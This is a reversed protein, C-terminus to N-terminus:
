DFALRLEKAVGKIMRIKSSHCFLFNCEGEVFGISDVVHLSDVRMSITKFESERELTERIRNLRDYDAGQVVEFVILPYQTMITDIAGELVQPEYSEVDLHILDVNNLGEKEVYDDITTVAIDVKESHESRFEPNLSSSTELVEGFRKAPVYLTTTGSEDGVALPVIMVTEEFGNLHLNRRLMELAPPYPEFAHVSRFGCAAAIFSFLGSNAGVDLMTGSSAGLQAVFAPLPTEYQRIGRNWVFRVVHDVGGGSYMRIRKRGSGSDISSTVISPVYKVRHNIRAALRKWGLCRAIRLGFIGMPRLLRAIMPSLHQENTM